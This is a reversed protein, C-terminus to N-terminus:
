RSLNQFFSYKLWKNWKNIKVKIDRGFSRFNKKIGATVPIEGVRISSYKGQINYLWEKPVDPLITSYTPVGNSKSTDYFM